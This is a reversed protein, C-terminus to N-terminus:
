ASVKVYDEGIVGKAKGQSERLKELANKWHAKCFGNQPASDDVGVSMKERKTTLQFM